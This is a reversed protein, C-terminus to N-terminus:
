DRVISSIGSRFIEACENHQGFAYRLKVGHVEGFSWKWFMVFRYLRWSLILQMRTDARIRDGLNELAIEIPEPIGRIKWVDSRGITQGLMEMIPGFVNCARAFQLWM